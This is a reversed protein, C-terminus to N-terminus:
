SPIRQKILLWLLIYPGVPADKQLENHRCACIERQSASQEATVRTHINQKDVHQSPADLQKAASPSEAEFRAFRREEGVGTASSLGALSPPALGFLHPSPFFRLCCVKFIYAVARSGTGRSCCLSHSHPARNNDGVGPVTGPRTRSHTKRETGLLTRPSKYM